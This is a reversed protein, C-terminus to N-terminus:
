IAPILKDGVVFGKQIVIHNNEARLYRRYMKVSRIHDSDNRSKRRIRDSLVQEQATFVSLSVRADNGFVAAKDNVVGKECIKGCAAIDEGFEPLVGVKVLAKGDFLYLVIESVAIGAHRYEFGILSM